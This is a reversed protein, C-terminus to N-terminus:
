SSSVTVDVRGCMPHVTGAFLPVTSEGTIKVSAEDLRTQRLHVCGDMWPLRIEAEDIDSAIGLLRWARKSDTETTQSAGSDIGLVARLLILLVCASWGHCESRPQERLSEPWTTLGEDNLLEFWPGVLAAAEDRMGVLIMAEAVFWLYYPTGPRAIDPAHWARGLASVAEDGTLVGALVAQVQAHLSFSGSEAGDTLLQRSGDWCVTRVAERCCDALRDWRPRLEAYGCAAELESLQAAAAALMSTVIASGGDKSQPANGAQFGPSWDVFPAECRGVLGDPRLKREFWAMIDRAAPLMPRLFAANGRLTLYDHLMGIWALSYTSIVQQMTAPFHSRLLGSPTRGAHLDVIAKRALRDENWFLMHCLAQLRADGPFQAQEYHPCDFFTEHSCLKVTRASVALLREWPRGAKDRVRIEAMAPLPFATEELTPLEITLPDDGTEITLEMYRFSRFWLPTWCRRVDGGDPMVVDLMGPLADGAEIRGRPAKHRSSGDLPRECTVVRIRAGAGGRWRLTPYASTLCGRDLVVRCRTRPPVCGQGAPLDGQFCQVRAWAVPEGTMEPLDGAVLEHDVSLNGWPNALKECLVQPQSWAGDAFTPELWGWPHDSADFREGAGVAMHGNSRGAREVQPQRSRDLWCRWASTSTLQSHLNLEDCAVVLFGRDGLQGKGAFGGGHWVQVGIVHTGAELAPLPIKSAYWARPHSRAPGRSLREGDVFLEYRQSASTWISSGAPVAVPMNVVCRFLVVAWGNAPADVCWLGPAQMLPHDDDLRTPM